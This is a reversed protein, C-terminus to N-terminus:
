LRKGTSSILYETPTPTASIAIKTQNRSYDLRACSLSNLLLSLVIVIYTNMTSAKFDMITPHSNKHAKSEGETTTARKNRYTRNNHLYSVIKMFSFSM